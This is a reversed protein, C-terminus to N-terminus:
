QETSHESTPTNAPAEHVPVQTAEALVPESHPEEAVDDVEFIGIVKRTQKDAQSTKMGHNLQHIVRPDILLGCKQM